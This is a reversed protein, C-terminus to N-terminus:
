LEHADEEMEADFEAAARAEERVAAAAEKEKEKIDDHMTKEGAQKKFFNKEAHVQAEKISDTVLIDDFSTGSTVQWLELGVHTCAPSCRAHLNLDDKFDPNPIEPHTWEGKYDANEIMKPRWTGSFDPNDIMPVEYEGDEADDWDDPRSATPDPIEPPIDDYNAPKKDTPDPIMKEDVWSAPKSQAPDKINKPALFDFADSLDGSRESKNDILVEFSNDAKIILTYLHSLGDTETRVDKNILLNNEEGSKGEPYNAIVHTRKTSGCIDPGFMLGYPSDGSFASADFSSGGPLLKIYAGGCDLNQEHKVTYQLVLDGGKNDFPNALPASLAYFRADETTQLALNTSDSYWKGATAEWKGMESAPKNKSVTWRSSWESDDFNEEFFTRASGLGIGSLVLLFKM